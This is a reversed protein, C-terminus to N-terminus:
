SRNTFYLLDHVEVKPTNKVKEVHTNSAATQDIVVGKTVPVSYLATGLWVFLVVLALLILVGIHLAKKDNMPSMEVVPTTWVCGRSM